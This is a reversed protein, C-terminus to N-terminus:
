HPSFIVCGNVAGEYESRREASAFCSPRPGGPRRLLGRVVPAVASAGPCVGGSLGRVLGGVAWAGGRLPVGLRGSNMVWKATKVPQPRSPHHSPIIRGGIEVDHFVSPNATDDMDRRAHHDLRISQGAIWHHHGGSIPDLELTIGGARTLNGLRRKSM